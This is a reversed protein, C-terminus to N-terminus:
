DQRRDPGSAEEAAVRLAEAVALADDVTLRKLAFDELSEADADGLWITVVGPEAATVALEYRDDDVFTFTTYDADTTM